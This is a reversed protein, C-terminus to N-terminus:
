AANTITNVSMATHGRVVGESGTLLTAATPTTM